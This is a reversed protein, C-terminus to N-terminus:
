RAAPDNARMAAIMRPWPPAAWGTAAAFRSGDLRRDCSVSVDDVIGTPTRYVERILSLLDFKSIPDAAVHWLGDLGPRERLLRGVLRALELTTLGSFLARSWGRVAPERRSLFWEVLGLRGRLERGIISTRLVLCGPGEPEGLLKALGYLDRADPPDTERYGVPGRVGDPRGSFVCDTSFQILRIGREGCLEALRCPLLANLAVADARSTGALSMAQKVAGVANLLADPRHRDLLRGVAATDRGDVGDLMRVGPAPVTVGGTRRTALVAFDPALVEALKHGLMGTGGLVLVTAAAVRSM